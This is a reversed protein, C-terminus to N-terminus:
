FAAMSRENERRVEEQLCEMKTKIVHLAQQVVDEPALAGTTEVTFIFKREDRKISVLDHDYRGMIERCKEELEGTFLWDKTNEVVVNGGDQM